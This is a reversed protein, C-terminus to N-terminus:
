MSEKVKIYHRAKAKAIQNMLEIDPMLKDPSDSVGQM